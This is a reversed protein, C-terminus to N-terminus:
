HEVLFFFFFLQNLEKKVSGHALAQLLLPLHGSVEGPSLAESSGKSPVWIARDEHWTEGPAPPITSPPGLLRRM